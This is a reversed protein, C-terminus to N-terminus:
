RIREPSSWQYEALNIRGVPTFEVGEAELLHQQFDPSLGHRRSIAGKHNVVRHWPVDEPCKALAYGVWRPAIRQFAFPDMGEPPDMQRAIGGYTMVRGSPIERILTFVAQDFTKRRESTGQVGTKM